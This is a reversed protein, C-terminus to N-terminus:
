GSYHKEERLGSGTIDNIRAKLAARQDNTIYVSRARAVFDPGFNETREDARLEDEVQWLKLNVTKLAASLRPLDPHSVDLSVLVNQLGDLEKEVNARKPGAPIKELKIELISIKDFIEGVSVPALPPGNQPGSTKVAKQAALIGRLEDAMSIFVGWWDGPTQQRVFWMTPYFATRTEKHLWRWDAEPEKLAVWVPRGLAGALHGIATDVTIVLDLSMMLAATDLFSDPGEDFNPGPQEIRTGFACAQLQDSGELKQLSILRVGPLMALPALATLSASRGADVPAKPNGQWAIGIRFGHGNRFGAQGLWQAWHAVRQPDTALYPIKPAPPPAGMGLAAPISLLPIWADVGEVQGPEDMPRLDSTIGSMKLLRFLRRHTVFIIKTGLAEVLPLYRMFQITDGMGQEDLVLLTKPAPGGTWRAKPVSTGDKQRVNVEPPQPMLRFRVELAQWARKWDQRYFLARALGIASHLDKPDRRLVQDYVQIAQDYAGGERALDALRLVPTFEGQSVVPQAPADASKSPARAQDQGPPLENM